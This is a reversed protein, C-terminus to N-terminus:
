GKIGGALVGDLYDAWVKMGARKEALYDYRDYHKSSVDGKVHNQIRDRVEKSIGARGAHTKWTRRIDRPIFPLAGTEHIYTHVIKNPTTCLAHKTPDGRHPFYMGHANTRISRMVDVAQRPLPISHPLGNKTKEWAFMGEDADYVKDCISVIEGIRQGTAIMLRLVMCMNTRHENQECWRWLALLEDAMLYRKSPCSALPDTPIATVPNFKIGWHAVESQRTYDNQATMGFSFASHIWSRTNHAMAVKGRAHVASLIPIVDDAVIDAAVRDGGIIAVASEKRKLLIREGAYAAGKDLTRLHKVYAEFLERVTAGHKNKRHARRAYKNHPEAGSLIAPAYEARFTERAEVLTMEPYAGIKILKRGAERFYIAYWESAVRSALPRVILALRGGGRPGSDKIITQARGSTPAHRIAAKLGAETLM